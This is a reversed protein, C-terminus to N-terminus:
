PQSHKVGSASESKWMCVQVCTFVCVCVNEGLNTKISFSGLLRCKEETEPERKYRVQEEEM